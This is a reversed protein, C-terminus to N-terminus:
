GHRCEGLKLAEAVGLFPGDVCSIFGSETACKGCIGVGCSTQYEISVRINEEGTFRKEIAYAKQIMPKPGVNIFVQTRDGGFDYAELLGTVYGQAGVSGDETAAHVEGLAAFRELDFIDGEVKGGLFFRISCAGSYKKAIEYVPSIGTGGAVFNVTVGRYDWVGKGYPGRLFLADGAGLGTLANTFFGVNKVIFERDRHSFLAFPKEGVGPLMLFFFKGAVGSDGEYGDWESVTIKHLVDTLAENKEVVCRRYEMNTVPPLVYGGGRGTLDRELGNLYQETERTNLNTLASGIGFFDAGATHFSEIHEATFIGGMGILVPEPGVAQRIDRLAKLGMPRIAEGSMGGVVNSLVPTGAVYEITPGISNTVTIGAAGNAIAAAAVGAVDPIAASLKVFVPVDVCGAIEKTIRSLLAADNGISLGYGKAHPCSMNLEFGDAYPSLIEATRRFDDVDRGFISVLLFKDAPVTIKALEAAFAGAGPNELGVANLYSNEAYKVYLPEKYGQKPELSVSKTTIMGVSEMGFYREIASVRACRVGSPIVFRGRIRKKGIAIGSYFGTNKLDHM